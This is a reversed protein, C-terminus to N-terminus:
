SHSAGKDPVYLPFFFFFFFEILSFYIDDIRIAVNCLSEICEQLHSM